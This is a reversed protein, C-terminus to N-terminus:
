KTIETLERVRRWGGQRSEVKVAGVGKAYWTVDRGTAYFSGTVSKWRSEIRVCEEFTGATVTVTELGIVKLHVDGFEREM